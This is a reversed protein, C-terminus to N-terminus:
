VLPQVPSMNMKSPCWFSNSWTSTSHHQSGCSPWSQCTSRSTASVFSTLFQLHIQSQRRKGWMWHLFLTWHLSILNLSQAQQLVLSVSENQCTQVWFRSQMWSSLKMGFSHKAIGVLSEKLAQKQMLLNRRSSSFVHHNLFSFARVLRGSKCLM